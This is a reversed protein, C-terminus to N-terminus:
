IEVVRKEMISYSGRKGTEVFGLKERLNIIIPNNSVSIQNFDDFEMCQNKLIYSAVGSGRYNEIVYLGGFEITNDNRYYYHYFCVLDGDNKRFFLRWKYKVDNILYPMERRYKREAFFKGMFKYFTGESIDEPYNVIHFDFVM